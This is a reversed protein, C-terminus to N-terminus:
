VAYLAFTHVSSLTGFTQEIVGGGLCEDEVYFVIYQGPTVARQPDAFQVDVQGDSRLRVECAQDAQRYRVKAKCEFRGTPPEGAVWELQNAVLGASMLASHDHGQVVKLVNRQLDKGCVYWPSEAAGSQGGIHLGQRQGLTYYMLGQHRGVSHGDLTEIEGPQAPLYRSLFEAFPREGIFCIGTSDKKDFVPLTLDRAIRRVEEKRLEGIPFLTRALSAAPM